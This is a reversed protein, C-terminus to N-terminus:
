RGVAAPELEALTQGGARVPLQSIGYAEPTALSTPVAPGAAPLVARSV